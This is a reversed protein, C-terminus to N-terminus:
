RNGRVVKKGKVCIPNKMATSIHPEKAKSVMM